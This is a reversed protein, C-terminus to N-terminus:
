GFIICMRQCYINAVTFVTVQGMGLHSATSVDIIDFDLTVLYGPPATIKWTCDELKNFPKPYNPSTLKM